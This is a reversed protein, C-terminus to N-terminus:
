RSVSTVVSTLSPGSRTQRGPRRGAAPGRAAPRRHPQGPGCPRRCWVCRGRHDHRRGLVADRVVPDAQAATQAARQPTEDCKADGSHQHGVDIESTQHQGSRGRASGFELKADCEARATPARRTGEGQLAHEDTEAAPHDRESQHEAQRRHENTPKTPSRTSVTGSRDARGGSARVAAATNAAAQIAAAQEASGLRRRARRPWSTCRRPIDLRIRPSPTTRWRNSTIAWSHKATM